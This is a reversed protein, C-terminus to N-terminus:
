NIVWYLFLGRAISFGATRGGLNGVSRKGALSIPDHFVPSDVM